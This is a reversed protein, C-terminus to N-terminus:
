SLTYVGVRSVFVVTYRFIEDYAISSFHLFNWVVVFVVDEIYLLYRRKERQRGFGGNEM